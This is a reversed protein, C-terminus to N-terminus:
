LQEPTVLRLNPTMSTLIQRVESKNDRAAALRLRLEAQPAGAEKVGDLRTIWRQVEDFEKQSIMMSIFATKLGLHDPFQEIASTMQTRAAQWDGLEFLAHGLQIEREPTLAGYEKKVSRLMDVARQRSVPDRRLTLIDILQA